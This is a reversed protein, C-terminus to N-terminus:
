RCTQGIQQQAQEIWFTRITPYLFLYVNQMFIEQINDIMGEEANNPIDPVIPWNIKTQKVGIVM